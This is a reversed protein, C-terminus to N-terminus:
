RIEGVNKRVKGSMEKVKRKEVSNEERMNKAFCAIESRQGLMGRNVLTALM